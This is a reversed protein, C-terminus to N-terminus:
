CERVQSIVNASNRSPTEILKADCQNQVLPVITPGNFGTIMPAYHRARGGRFAFISEGSRIAHWSEPFKSKERNNVDM